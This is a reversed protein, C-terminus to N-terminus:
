NKLIPGIHDLDFSEVFSTDEYLDSLLQQDILQLKGDAIDDGQGADWAGQWIAALTRAGEAMVHITRDGFKKWLAEKVAVVDKGGAKIFAKVLTTPDITDAARDMLRVVEHAADKGNKVKPLAKGSGALKKLGERILGAKRDIMASEYTSHVGKGAGDKFGDAFMSGHLPQCADGVYHAVIGAACLFSVPEGQDAFKKMEDFFQWV